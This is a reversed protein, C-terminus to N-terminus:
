SLDLWHRFVSFNSFIDLRIRRLLLRPVPQEFPLSIKCALVASSFETRFARLFTTPSVNDICRMSKNGRGSAIGADRPIQWPLELMIFLLPQQAITSLSIM